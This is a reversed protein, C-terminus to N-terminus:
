RETNQLMTNKEKIVSNKDQYDRYGFNGHEGSNLTVTAYSAPKEKLEEASFLDTNSSYKDVYIVVDHDPMTFQGDSVLKGEVICKLGAGNRVVVRDGAKAKTLEIDSGYYEVARVDKESESVNQSYVIKIKHEQPETGEAMANVPFAGLLIVFALILSLFKNVKKKM